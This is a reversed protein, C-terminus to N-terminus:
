TGGIATTRPPVSESTSSTLVQAHEESVNPLVVFTGGLGKREGFVLRDVPATVREGGVDAFGLGLADRVGGLEIVVERTLEGDGHLAEVEGIMRGRADLIKAGRYGDAEHATPTQVHFRDGPQFVGVTTAAEDLVARAEDPRGIQLLHRAREIQRLADDFPHHHAGTFAHNAVEAARRSCDIAHTAASREGRSLALSAEDLSAHVGETVAIALAPSDASASAAAAEFPASMRVEWLAQLAVLGAVGMALMFSILLAKRM